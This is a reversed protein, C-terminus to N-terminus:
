QSIRYDIRYTTNAALQAAVGIQFTTTNITSRYFKNWETATIANAQSIQAFPLVGSSYANPFSLSVASVNTGTPTPGTTIVITGCVENSGTALTVSAGQATTGIVGTNWSVSPTSTSSIRYWVNNSNNLGEFGGFTSNFRVIQGGTPRQATTGSPIDIGDTGEVDLTTNPADDNIGTFGNSLMTIGELGGLNAGAKIKFPDGSASNDIGTSYSAGSGNTLQYQTIPSGGNSQFQILSNASTGANSNAFLYTANGTANLSYNNGYITGGSGTLQTVAGFDPLLGADFRACTNASNGSVRFRSLNVATAGVSVNNLTTNYIGGAGVTWNSGGGGTITITNGSVGVTNTGAGAINVSGGSNSLTVTGTTTGTVSLTQLENTTSQDPAIATVPLTRTVGAEIIQLNGGTVSFNTILENSVSGDVEAGAINLTNTGPTYTPTIIGSGTVTLTQGALTESNAGVSITLPENTTSGDVENSAITFNPYTGTVNTIGAGTLTVTQDPATNIINMNAGTATLSIAAGATLTVDTGTSSNLTIPSSTGSFSLNTGGSAVPSTIVVKQLVTDFFVTSGGRGVFTLTDLYNIATTRLSDSVSFSYQVRAGACFTSDIFGAVTAYQTQSLPITIKDPNTGTQEIFEVSNGPRLRILYPEDIWKNFVGLRYVMLGSFSRSQFSTGVCIDCSDGTMNANSFCEFTFVPAQAKASATLFLLALTTLILRM